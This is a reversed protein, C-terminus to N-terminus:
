SPVQMAWRPFLVAGPELAREAARTVRNDWFVAMHVGLAWAPVHTGAPCSWRAAAALCLAEAGVLAGALAPAAHVAVALSAIRASVEAFRFVVLAARRTASPPARPLQGQKFDWCDPEALGWALSAHAVAVSLLLSITEEGGALREYFCFISQPVTKFCSVLFDSRPAAFAPHLAAYSPRTLARTTDALFETRTIIAIRSLMSVGARPMTGVQVCGPLAMIAVYVLLAHVRGPQLLSWVVALDCALEVTCFLASLAVRLQLSRPSPAM